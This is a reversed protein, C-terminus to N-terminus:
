RKNTRIGGTFILLNSRNEAIEIAKKLRIQIIVLLRTIIVNIGLDALNKSLFRANTNVIQGLLLESGVAIIEANM